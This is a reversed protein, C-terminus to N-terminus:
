ITFIYLSLTDVFIDIKKKILTHRLLTKSMPTVLIRLDFFFLCYLSWFSLWRDVFYVCLVLSRTVRVGSFVPCLRHQCYIGVLLRIIVHLV